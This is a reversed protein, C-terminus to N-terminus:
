DLKQSMELNTHCFDTFNASFFGNGPVIDAVRVVLGASAPERIKLFDARMHIAARRPNADAGRAYFLPLDKFCGSVVSRKEVRVRVKTAPNKKATIIDPKYIEM